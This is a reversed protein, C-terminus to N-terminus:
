ERDPPAIQVDGTAARVTNLIAALEAAQQPTIGPLGFSAENLATTASRAVARGEETIAAPVVRRDNPSM